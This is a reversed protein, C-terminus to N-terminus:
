LQRAKAARFHAVFRRAEEPRFGEMVPKDNIRVDEFMTDGNHRVFFLRGNEYRADALDHYPLEIGRNLLTRVSGRVLTSILEAVMGQGQEGAKPAAVEELGRDTLQLVVGEETLLLAVAGDRTVIGHEAQQLAIRPVIRTEDSSGSNGVRIQQAHAAHPLSVSAALAALLLCHRISM